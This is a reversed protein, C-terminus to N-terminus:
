SSGFRQLVSQIALVDQGIKYLLYIYILSAREIEPIYISINSNIVWFSANKLGKEGNKMYNEETKEKRRRM